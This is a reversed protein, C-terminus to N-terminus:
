SIVKLALQASSFDSTAWASSTLPNTDMPRTYMTYNGGLSVGSNFSESTGNGFGLALVRTGSDDKRASAVIQAAVVASVTGLSSVTYADIQGPTSSSVYSTDDDPPVENVATYNGSSSGGTRSWQNVRGNGNPLLTVIKVDGLFDNNVSGTGDCIYVDDFIAAVGSDQLSVMNAYPHGTGGATGIGTLSLISTGDLHVDAGGSGVFSIKMEFYHFVGAHVLGLASTGFPTGNHDLVSVAGNNGVSLSCQGVGNDQMSAITGSNISGVQRAFGFILTAANTPLNKNRYDFGGLQLGQGERGGSVITGSGSDWKEYLHATNYHDFGDCFLLAM